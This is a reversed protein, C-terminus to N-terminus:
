RIQTCAKRYFAAGKGGKGEAKEHATTEIIDYLTMNTYM